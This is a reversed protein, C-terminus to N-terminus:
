EIHEKLRLNDNRENNIQNIDLDKNIANYTKGSQLLDLIMM